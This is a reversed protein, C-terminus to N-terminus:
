SGTINWVIAQCVIDDASTTNEVYIEIIDDKELNKLAQLSIQLPVGASAQVFASTIDDNIGNVRFLTRFIDSGAQSKELTLTALLRSTITKNGYYKLTGDVENYTTSATASTITEGVTFYQNDGAGDQVYEVYIYNNALDISEIKATYTSTGGTIIQGEEFNAASAVLIRSSFLLNQSTKVTDNFDIKAPVSATLSTTAGAFTDITLQITPTNDAIGQNGQINYTPLDNYGLSNPNFIGGTTIGTAIFINGSINAEKATAGSEINLAYDVTRPHLINGNFNLANIGTPIYSGAGGTQGSWNNDRLTLMTTGQGNWLVVKNNLGEFSLGNSVEFGSDWARIFNANFNVTGYGEVAGLSSGNGAAGGILNCNFVYFRRNRGQFPDVLPDITYDIDTADFLTGSDCSVGLRLLVLNADNATFMADTGEYILIDNQPNDGTIGCNNGFVIRNTGLNVSGSIRYDKGDELTIVNAVPAPFDALKNIIVKNQEVAPLFSTDVLGDLDTKIPKGADGAGTTTDIFESTNYAGVQASTVSHPNATSSIHSDIQVHSNTGINQILTHDVMSSDVTVMSSDLQGASDLVVPKGADVVGASSNIFDTKQYFDNPNLVNDDVYKKTALEQDATPDVGEIKKNAIINGGNLSDIEDVIIKSM